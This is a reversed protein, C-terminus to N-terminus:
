SLDGRGPRTRQPMLQAPEDVVARLRRYWRLHGLGITILYTLFVSYITFEGPSMSGPTTPTLGLFHLVAAVWAISGMAAGYFSLSAIVLAARQSRRIVARYEAVFVLPGGLLGFGAGLGAPGGFAEPATFALAASAVVIMVAPAVTLGACLWTFADPRPTAHV